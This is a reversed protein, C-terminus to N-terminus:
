GYLCFPVSWGTTLPKQRLNVGMPQDPTTTPKASSHGTRGDRGFPSCGKAAAHFSTLSLFIGQAKETINALGQWDFGHSSVSHSAKKM